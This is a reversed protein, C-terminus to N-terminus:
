EKYVNQMTELALSFADYKLFFIDMGKKITIYGPPSQSNYGGWKGLRAIIWSAWSLSNSQFPNKQKDTKGELTPLLIKLFQIQKNRFVITASCDNRKKDYAIKLIMIQLAAQLCFLILRKLAMGTELQAAEIDLGDSKLIRFLEEIYWRERYWQICQMAQEITDVKHTTYLRWEIPEEGEPVTESREVM